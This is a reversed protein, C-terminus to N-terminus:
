ILNKPKFVMAWVGGALAGGVHALHAINNGFLSNGSFQAWCEYALLATVFYKAQFSFPVFMLSLHSRPYVVAFAALIGYVGGSAGLLMNQSGTFEFYAWAGFLGGLVFLLAIQWDRWVYRLPAAFMALGYMNLLLHPVSDHLLMHTLWQWDAYAPSWYNHLSGQWRYDYGATQAIFIAVCVVIMAVHFSIKKM